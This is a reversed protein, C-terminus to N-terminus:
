EGAHSDLRPLPELSGAYAWTRHDTYSDYIYFDKPGLVIVKRSLDGIV